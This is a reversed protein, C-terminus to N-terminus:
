MVKEVPSRRSRVEWRGVVFLLEGLACSGTCAERQNIIYTANLLVAKRKKLEVSARCWAPGPGSTM